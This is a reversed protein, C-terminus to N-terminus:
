ASDDKVPNQRTLEGNFSRGIIKDLSTSISKKKQM